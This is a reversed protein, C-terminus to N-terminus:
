RLTPWARLAASQPRWPVPDTRCRWGRASLQEAYTSADVASLLLAVPVALSEAMKLVQAPNVARAVLTSIPDQYREAEGLVARVNGFERTSERLFAVRRQRAELLVIASERRMAAVGVGPFGAGAGFDAVTGAGDELQHALFLSEGYHRRVASEVSLDGVLNMARNWKWLVRLHALCLSIARDDWSFAHEARLSELGKVFAAAEGETM